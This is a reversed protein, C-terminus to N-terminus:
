QAEAPRPPHGTPPLLCAFTLYSTHGRVESMTKSLIIKTLLGPSGAAAATSQSADMRPAEGDQGYTQDDMEEDTKVRKGSLSDDIIVSEQEEDEEDRKRKAGYITKGNAIQQLRKEERNLEAKKLKEGVETINQLAPAPTVDHPRILTEFM